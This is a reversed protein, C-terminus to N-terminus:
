ECVLCTCRGYSVLCHGVRRHVMTGLYGSLTSTSVCDSQEGFAANVCCYKQFRTKVLPNRNVSAIIFKEEGRKRKRREIM